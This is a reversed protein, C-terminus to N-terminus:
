NTFLIIEVKQSTGSRKVFNINHRKVLQTGTTQFIRNQASPNKMKSLLCLMILVLVIAM